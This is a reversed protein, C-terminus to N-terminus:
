EGKPSSAAASRTEAGHPPPSALALAGLALPLPWAIGPSLLTAMPGLQVWLRAVLRAYLLLLAAAAAARAPSGCPRGGASKAALAAALWLTGPMLLLLYQPLVYFIVDPNPCYLAGLLPSCEPNPAHRGLLLVGWMAVVGPPDGTVLTGVVWPGLLLWASFAVQLAWSAPHAAASHALPALPAAALRQLRSLAGPTAGQRAPSGNTLPPAGLARPLLLMGGLHALGLLLMGCWGLLPWDVALVLYELATVPPQLPPSGAPVVWRQESCSSSETAGLDPVVVQLTLATGAPCTPMEAAAEFLAHRRAPNGAEGGRRAEMPTCVERPEGAACAWCARPQPVNGAAAASSAPLVMARVPPASAGAQLPPAGYRGDAPSTILVVWDRVARTADVPVIPGPPHLSACTQPPTGPPTPPPGEHQHPRFELDAFSVEAGDVTLLRFRREYKWSATELEMMPLSAASSRHLRHLRQGFAAHLHGSLYAATGHRQLVEPLTEGKAPTRPYRIVSLPYHSFAIVPAPTCNGQAAIMAALKADFEQVLAPSAVGSFNLPGRLKCSPSADIAVLLASPCAPDGADGRRTSHVRHVQVNSEGRRGRSRSSSAYQPFWDRADSCGVDLADHNGRTDLLASGPLSTFELLRDVARRYRQFESEVQRGIPANGPFVKSHVLDGSVFVAHPALGPIVEEALRLLDTVRGPDEIASVHIDSLQLLLAPTPASGGCHRPPAVCMVALLVTMLMHAVGSSPHVPRAGPTSRM